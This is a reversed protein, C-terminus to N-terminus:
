ASDQIISFRLGLSRAIRDAVEITPTQKGRLIRYIYQRSVQAAVAVEAVTLNRDIMAAEIASVFGKM